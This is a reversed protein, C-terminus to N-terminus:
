NAPWCPVWTDVEFCRLYPRNGTWQGTGSSFPLSRAWCTESSRSGSCTPWRPRRTTRTLEGNGYAHGTCRSESSPSSPPDAGSQRLSSACNNPLSPTGARPRVNCLLFAGAGDVGHGGSSIAERASVPSHHDRATSGLRSPRRLPGAHKAQASGDKSGRPPATGTGTGGPYTWNRHLSCSHTTHQPLATLWDAFSLIGHERRRKQGEEITVSEQILAPLQRPPACDGNRRRSRNHRFGPPSPGSLFLSHQHHKDIFPWFEWTPTIQPRPSPPSHPVSHGQM